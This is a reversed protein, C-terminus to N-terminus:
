PTDSYKHLLAKIHTRRVKAISEWLREALGPTQVYSIKSFPLFYDKSSYPIPLKRVDQIGQTEIALDAPADQMVYAAIRKLRLKQLNQETTRAEEVTFGAKRLDVGVSYGSNVGLVGPPPAFQKGDWTLPSGTVTYVHYQLAALRLRSDPKGDLMPYVAYAAREESYSFMLMADVEGYEVARLVRRGPLREWSVKCQIAAAALNVLEVAIGPQDPVTAGDGVLYPPAATDSYAVTLNCAWAGGCCVLLLISRVLRM